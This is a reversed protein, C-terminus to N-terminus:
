NSTILRSPPEVIHIKLKHAANKPLIGESTQFAALAWLGLAIRSLTGIPGDFLMTLPNFIDKIPMNAYYAMLEASSATNFFPVCTIGIHTDDEVDNINLLMGFPQFMQGAIYPTHVFVSRGISTMLEILNEFGPIIENRALASFTAFDSTIATEHWDDITRALIVINSHNSHDARGIPYSSWAAWPTTDSEAQLAIADSVHQLGTRLQNIHHIPVHINM